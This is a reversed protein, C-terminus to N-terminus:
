RASTELSEIWRMQEDLNSRLVASAAREGEMEARCAELELFLSARQTEADELAKKAGELEKNVASLAEAQSDRAAAM